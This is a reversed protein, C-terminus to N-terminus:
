SREIKDLKALAIEDKLFGIYADDTCQFVAHTKDQALKGREQMVLSRGSLWLEDSSGIKRVFHHPVVAAHNTGFDGYVKNTKVISDVNDLLYLTGIAPKRSMTTFPKVPYDNWHPDNQKKECYGAVYAISSSDAYGISCLGYSWLDELTKSRYLTSLSSSLSYFELDDLRLGFVIAHYHPRGYQTGYEGCAFYRFKYGARRLRKWFKQLDEKCLSNYRPLHRNDYTLTLFLCEDQAYYQSELQCRVSWEKAHAMRCGVCHGCPIPLPDVLFQRGNIVETHCDKLIGGTCKCADEYSLRDVEGSVILFEDKDNETRRGTRFAHLPHNCSM